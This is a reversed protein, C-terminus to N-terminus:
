YNVTTVGRDLYYQLEEETLQKEEQLKEQLEEDTLETLAYSNTAYNILSQKCCIDSCLASGLTILYYKGDDEEFIQRERLMDKLLLFDFKYKFARESDPDSPWFWGEEIAFTRLYKVIKDYDKLTSLKM